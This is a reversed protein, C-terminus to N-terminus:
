PCSSSYSYSSPSSCSIVAVSRKPLSMAPPPPYPSPSPSALLSPSSSSCSTSRKPFEISFLSSSSSSSSSSPSSSSPSSSSSSSVTSLPVDSDWPFTTGGAGPGEDRGYRGATQTTSSAFKPDMALREFWSLGRNQFRLTLLQDVATFLTSLDKLAAYAREMDYREGQTDEPPLAHKACARAIGVVDGLVSQVTDDLDGFEAEHDRSGNGSISRSSSKSSSNSKCKGVSSDNEGSGSRTRDSEAMIEDFATVAEAGIRAVVLTVRQASSMLAADPMFQTVQVGDHMPVDRPYTFEWRKNAVFKGEEPLFFEFYQSIKENAIRQLLPDKVHEVSAADIVELMGPRLPRAAGSFAKTSKEHWDFADVLVDLQQAGTEDDVAWGVVVGRYFDATHYVVDGVRFKAHRLIAEDKHREHSSLRDYLEVKLESMVRLAELADDLADGGDVSVRESEPAKFKDRIVGILDRQSEIKYANLQHAHASFPVKNFIPDKASRMLKRFLARALRPNSM